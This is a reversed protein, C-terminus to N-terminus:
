TILIVILLLILVVTCQICHTYQTYVLRYHLCVRFFSFDVNGNPRDMDVLIWHFLSNVFVSKVRAGSLEQGGFTRGNRERWLTWM